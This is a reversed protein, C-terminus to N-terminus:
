RISQWNGKWDFTEIGTFQKKYDYHSPERYAYGLHLYNIGMLRAYEMERLITYIGLRRSSYSPRFIAYVSSACKEGLDLYSVAILQQQDYVQCEVCTCPVVAPQDSLFNSLSDPVRQKFRSKHEHFIEM